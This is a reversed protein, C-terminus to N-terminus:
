SGLAAQSRPRGAREKRRNLDDGGRILDVDSLPASYPSPTRMWRGVSVGHGAAGPGEFGCGRSNVREEGQLKQYPM